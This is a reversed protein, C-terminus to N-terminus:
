YERHATPANTVGRGVETKEERLHPPERTDAHVAARQHHVRYSAAARVELKPKSIPMPSDM